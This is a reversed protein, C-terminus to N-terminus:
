HNIKKLKLWKEKIVDNFLWFENNTLKKINYSDIFSPFSTIGSNDLGPYTRLAFNTNYSKITWFENITVSDYIIYAYYADYNKHIREKSLKIKCNFFATSDVGDVSYQEIEWTGTARQHVTRFHICDDEEYKKCSALFLLFAVIIVSINRM